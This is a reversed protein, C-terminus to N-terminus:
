NLHGDPSRGFHWTIVMDLVVTPIVKPQAPKPAGEIEVREAWVKVGGPLTIMAGGCWKAM